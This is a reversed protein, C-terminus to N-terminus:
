HHARVAGHPARRSLAALATLAGAGALGAAVAFATAPDSASTTVATAVAVVFAAGLEHMTANLGSLVGADAHTAGAM